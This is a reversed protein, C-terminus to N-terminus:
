DKYLNCLRRYDRQLCKYDAELEANKKRLETLEKMDRNYSDVSIKIYDQM